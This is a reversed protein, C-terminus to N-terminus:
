APPTQLGGLGKLSLEVTPFSVQLHISMLQIFSCFCQDGAILTQQGHVFARWCGVLAEGGAANGLVLFHPACISVHDHSSRAEAITQVAGDQHVFSDALCVM